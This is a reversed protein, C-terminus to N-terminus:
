NEARSVDLVRMLAFPSRGRAERNTKKDCISFAAIMGRSGRKTRLSIAAVAEVAGEGTKEIGIRRGPRPKELRATEDMSEILETSRMCTMERLKMLYIVDNPRYPSTSLYIRHEGVTQKM